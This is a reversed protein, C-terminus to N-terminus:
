LNGTRKLLIVHYSDNELSKDTGDIVKILYPGDVIAGLTNKNEVFSHQLNVQLGVDFATCQMSM